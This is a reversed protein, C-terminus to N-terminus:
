LSLWFAEEEQENSFSFVGESLSAAPRTSKKNSQGGPEKVTIADRSEIADGADTRGTLIAETDGVQFRTLGIDFQVLLDVRGDGNVDTLRYRPEGRGNRSLSDELGTRGFRLSDIVVTTADFTASSLVAVDVKGKSKLNIANSEDGPKVDIAPHLTEDVDSLRVTVTAEDSLGAPDTARVTLVFVPTTEYDLPAADAVSISGTTSDIVFAGSENGGVIAFSLDDGDPDTADVTGVVTGVPSNEPLVFEVDAAEPPQNSEVASTVFGIDDFWLRTDIATSVPGDYAIEFGTFYDGAGASFGYFTDGAGQVESIRRSASVTEGSALRGTVIVNGYDRIGYQSSRSVATIGFQTVQEDLTVGGSTVPGFSFATYDYGGQSSSAFSGTGSISPGGSGIGWNTGDTAWFRLLKSKSAGFEYYSALVSGDIVGGADQDYAASVRAAFQDDTLHSGAAIFDVTNTNVIDEDYVGVTAALLM